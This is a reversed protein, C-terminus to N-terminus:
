CTANSAAAPDAGAGQGDLAGVWAACRRTIDTRSADTHLVEARCGPLGASEAPDFPEAVQLQFDLVATGADSADRGEAERRAIRARLVPEPARCELLHGRVGARVALSLLARREAARLCAADVVVSWGDALAQAATAQLHAYTRETAARGYLTAAPLQGPGDGPRDTPALGYLRKREVDSRLWLAGLAEALQGAVTSKGSGSLGWTVVLRPEPAAALAEALALDRAATSRAAAQDAAAIGPEAAHIWSVKVRVLARYVAQWRLLGLADFDGSRELWRALLRHALAPCGHALLDMWPFALEAAVDIWRLEPEFELADFAMPMGDLAVWNGLHADGHCERVRGEAHRRALRPALEAARADSWGALAAIRAQEAPGPALRALAALNDRVWRLMVAPQGPADPAQPDAPPLGAHFALLRDALREVMAVDLRGQAALRSLLQADDFRRMHLVWDLTGPPAPEGPALAAGIRPADAPGRLPHVGLYFDPATRRNLRLEEECFHRRAARRRFDLFGLALPKKLKWADAGALLLSSIHTDVRRVPAGGAAELQRALAEVRARHAALPTM